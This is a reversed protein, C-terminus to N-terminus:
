PNGAIRVGFPAFIDKGGIKVQAFLKVFGARAPELHFKIEPGGAAAATGHGEHGHSAADMPHTHMVTRFDDYFGVIHASAGMVPELTTVPKGKADSVTITGMAMEGSKPARDFSLTFRYNGVKAESTETRDIAGGRPNGLDAAVFQQRHNMLLTVDAWARYSGAAHPTFTFSFIGPTATPQPHVHQYDALAPDAILLHFKETHVVELDEALVVVQDPVSTLKAMVTVPKGAELPGQPLLTLRLSPKELKKGKAPDNFDFKGTGEGCASLLACLGLAFFARKKM